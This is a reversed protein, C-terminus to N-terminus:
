SRDFIALARRIDRLYVPFFLPVMAPEHLRWPAPNEPTSWPSRMADTIWARKAAPQPQFVAKGFHAADLIIRGTAATKPRGCVSCAARAFQIQIKRM